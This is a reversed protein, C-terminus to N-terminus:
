RCYIAGAPLSARAGPEVPQQGFLQYLWNTGHVLASLCCVSVHGGCGSVSLALGANAGFWLPLGAPRGAGAAVGGLAGARGFVLWIGPLALGPSIGDGADM